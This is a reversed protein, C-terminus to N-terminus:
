YYAHTFEGTNFVSLPPKDAKGAKSLNVWDLLIATSKRSKKQKACCTVVNRLVWSSPRLSRQFMLELVRVALKWQADEVAKTIARKHILTSSRQAAPSYQAVLADGDREDESDESKVKAAETLLRLGLAENGMRESAIIGSALLCRGDQTAAIKDFAYGAAKAYSLVIPVKEEHKEEPVAVAARAVAAFTELPPTDSYEVVIRKLLDLAKDFSGERALAQCVKDQSEFDIPTGSHEMAAIIALATDIGGFGEHTSDTGYLGLCNQICYNGAQEPIRYGDEMMLEIIKRAPESARAGQLRDQMCSELVQQYVSEDVKEKHRKGLKKLKRTAAKWHGKGAKSRITRILDSREFDPDSQDVFNVYIKELNQEAMSTVVCEQNEDFSLCNDRLLQRLQGTTGTTPLERAELEHQLERFRLRSVLDNTLTKHNPVPPPTNAGAPPAEAETATAEAKLAATSLTKVTTLGIHQSSHVNTWANVSAALLASLLIVLPFRMTM